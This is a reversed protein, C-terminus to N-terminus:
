GQRTIGGPGHGSHRSGCARSRNAPFCGIRVTLLPPRIRGPRFLGPRQCIAPVPLPGTPAPNIGLFLHQMTSNGVLTWRYIHEPKIGAQACAENTLHCIDERVLTRLTELGDGHDHCHCIRSMVDAGYPAQSNASAATAVTEGSTLDLLYLALTTTGIDVAAGFINGTTDGSECGTLSNNETILTVPDEERAILEAFRRLVESDVPSDAGPPLATRLAQELPIALNELTAELPSFLIKGPVGRPPIDVRGTEELGVKARGDFSSELELYVKMACDAQQRCALRWGGQLRTPPIHRREEPSVPREGGNDIRVLCRGCIGRGACPSDIALKLERALDLM